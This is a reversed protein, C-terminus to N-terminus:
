LLLLTSFRDLVIRAEFKFLFRRNRVNIISKLAIETLIMKVSILALREPLKWNFRDQSWTCCQWDSQKKNSPHYKAHEANAHEVTSSRRKFKLAFLCVKMLGSSLLFNATHVWNLM